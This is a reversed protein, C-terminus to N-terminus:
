KGDLATFVVELDSPQDFRIGFSEGPGASRRTDLGLRISPYREVFTKLATTIVSQALDFAVGQHVALLTTTEDADGLAHELREVLEDPSPPANGGYRSLVFVEAVDLGEGVSMQHVRQVQDETPVDNISLLMIVRPKTAPRAPSKWLALLRLVLTRAYPPPEEMIDLEYLMTPIVLMQGEFPNSLNFGAHFLALVPDQAFKINFYERHGSVRCMEQTLTVLGCAARYTATAIAASGYDTDPDYV